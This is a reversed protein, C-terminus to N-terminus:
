CSPLFNESINEAGLGILALATVLSTIIATWLPPSTVSDCSMDWPRAAEKECVTQSRHVDCQPWLGSLLFSNPSYKWSWDSLCLRYPFKSDPHTPAWMQLLLDDLTSVPRTGFSSPPPNKLCLSLKHLSAPWGREIRSSRTYNIAIQTSQPHQKKLLAAFVYTYIICRFRQKLIGECSPLWFPVSSLWPWEPAPHFPPPLCLCIAGPPPKRQQRTPCNLLTLSAM